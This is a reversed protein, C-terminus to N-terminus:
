NEEVSLFILSGFCHGTPVKKSFPARKLSFHVLVTGKHLSCKTSDIPLLASNEPGEFLAGLAGNQYWKNKETYLGLVNVIYGMYECLM